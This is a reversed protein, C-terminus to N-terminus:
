AKEAVAAAELSEDKNRFIRKKLATGWGHRRIPNGLPDRKLSYERLVISTVLGLAALPIFVVFVIELAEGYAEIALLRMPDKVDSFMQSISLPDNHFSMLTSEPLAGDFLRQFAGPMVSSKVAASAALGIVGGGNRFFNRVSTAFAVEKESTCAQSAVLTCQMLCGFGIGLLLMILITQYSEVGPRFFVYLVVTAIVQLFFSLMLSWKYTGLYSVMLGSGWSIAVSSITLPIITVSSQIADQGGVVQFFEPLYYLAAYFLYGFIFNMLLVCDLDINRFVSPNMIPQIAGKSEWIFFIVLVCIGVIFPALVTPSEFTIEPPQIFTIGVLLSTTGGLFLVMGLYDITKLKAKLLRMDHKGTSPLFFVTGVFALFAIPMEFFFAMRWRVSTGVLVGGLTPGIASGLGNLSSLMGHYVGRKHLAVIDSVTIQVMSFLGAGGVGAISRGILLVTMSPALACIILGCFFIVQAALFLPKRGFVDSLRGYIPSFVTQTLLYCIGVWSISDSGFDQSITPM